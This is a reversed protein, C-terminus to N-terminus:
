VPPKLTEFYAETAIIQAAGIAPNGTHIAVAIIDIPGFYASSRQGIGRTAGGGGAKTKVTLVTWEDWNPIVAGVGGLAVGGARVAVPYADVNGFTGDTTSFSSWYDPPSYGASSEIPGYEVGGGRTKMLVTYVQQGGFSGISMWDDVGDARLFPTGAEVLTQYQFSATPQTAEGVIGEWM